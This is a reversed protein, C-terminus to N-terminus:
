IIDNTSTPQSYTYEYNEPIPNSNYLNPEFQSSLEIVKETNNQQYYQNMLEVLRVQNCYLKTSNDNIKDCIQTNGRIVFALYCNDKVYVDSILDCYSVKSTHDAITSYCINKQETSTFKECDNAATPNNTVQQKIAILRSGFTNDKPPTPTTPIVPVTPTPQSVNRQVNIISFEYSSEVTKSGYAATLKLEYSGQSLTSPILLIGNRTSEKDITVKESYSKKVQNNSLIVYRLNADIKKSSTITAEYNINEGALYEYKDGSISAEVTTEKSSYALLLYVGVIILLIMIVIWLFSRGQPKNIPRPQQYASQSFYSIVEDVQQPPVNNKLLWNRISYLDHGQGLSNRVYEL